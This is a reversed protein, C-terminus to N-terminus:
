LQSWNSDIRVTGYWANRLAQGLACHVSDLPDTRPIEGCRGPDRGNCTSDARDGLRVECRHHPRQAQGGWGWRFDGGCVRARTLPRGSWGGPAQPAWERDGGGYGRVAAEARRPSAVTVAKKGCASFLIDYKLGLRVPLCRMVSM